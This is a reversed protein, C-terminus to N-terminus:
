PGTHIHFKTESMVSFVCVSPIQACLHQPSYRFRLPIFYYSFSSSQLRDCHGRPRVCSSDEHTRIGSLAHIDTNHANTRHTPLPRAGPQNETWPIRGVRYLILFSFFRCLGLLPGYLLLLLLLPSSQMIVLTM